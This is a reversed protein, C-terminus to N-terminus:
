DEDETGIGLYVDDDESVFIGHDEFYNPNEDNMNLSLFIGEYLIGYGNGKTVLIEKLGIDDIIVEYTKSVLDLADFETTNFIKYWLYTM